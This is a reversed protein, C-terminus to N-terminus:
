IMKLVKVSTLPLERPHRQLFEYYTFFGGWCYNNFSNSQCYFSFQQSYKTKKQNCGQLHELLLDFDQFYFILVSVRYTRLLEFKVLKLCNNRLQM